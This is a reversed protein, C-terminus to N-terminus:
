KLKEIRRKIETESIEEPEFLQTKANRQKENKWRIVAAKHGAASRRKSTEEYKAANTFFAQKWHMFERCTVPDMSELDPDQDAHFLFAARILKGLQQDTLDSITEYWNTFLLFSDKKM